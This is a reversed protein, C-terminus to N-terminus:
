SLSASLRFQDPLYYLSVFGLALRERVATFAEIIWHVPKLYTGVSNRCSSTCRSSDEGTLSRLRYFCHILSNKVFNFTHVSRDKPPHQSKPSIFPVPPFRSILNSQLQFATFAENKYPTRSGGSVLIPPLLFAVCRNLSILSTPPVPHWLYACACSPSPPFLLFCSIM